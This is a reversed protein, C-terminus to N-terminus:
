KLCRDICNFDIKIWQHTEYIKILNQEEQVKCKYECYKVDNIDKENYKHIVLLITLIVLLSLFVAFINMLILFHKEPDNM